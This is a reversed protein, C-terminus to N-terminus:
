KKISDLHASIIRENKREIVLMLNLPTKGKAEKIIDYDAQDLIMDQLEVKDIRQGKLDGDLSTIDIYNKDDDAEIHVTEIKFKGSYATYVPKQRTKTVKVKERAKDYSIKECGDSISDFGKKVFHRVFSEHAYNIAEMANKQNEFFLKEKESANKDSNRKEIFKLIRDLIKYGSFGFLGICSVFALIKVIEIDMNKLVELVKLVVGLDFSGDKVRVQIELSEKEKPTLVSINSTGHIIECYAVFISHQMNLLRRMIPPNIVGEYQKGEVIYRFEPAWTDLFSIDNKVSFEPSELIKSFIDEAEELSSIVYKM